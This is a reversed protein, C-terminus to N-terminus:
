SKMQIPLHIKMLLSDFDTGSNPFLEEYTNTFEENNKETDSEENESFDFEDDFDDTKATPVTTDSAEGVLTGNDPKDSDRDFFENIFQKNETKDPTNLSQAIVDDVAHEKAHFVLQCQGCRVKGKAIALHHETVRFYTECSPCRSYM